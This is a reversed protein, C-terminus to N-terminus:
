LAVYATFAKCMASILKLPNAGLLFWLFFFLGLALGVYLKNRWCWKVIWIVLHVMVTPPALFWVGIVNVVALLPDFGANYANCLLTGGMVPLRILLLVLDGAGHWGLESIQAYLNYVIDQGYTAERRARVVQGEIVRSSTRSDLEWFNGVFYQEEPTPVHPVVGEAEATTGGARSPEGLPVEVWDGDRVVRTGPPRIGERGSGSMGATAGEGGAATETAKAKGKEMVEDPVEVEQAQGEKSPALMAGEATEGKVLPAGTTAALDNGLLTVIAASSRQVGGLFVEAVDTALIREMPRPGLVHEKEKGKKRSRAPTSGLHSSTATTTATKSDHTGSAEEDHKQKRISAFKDGIDHKIKEVKTLRYSSIAKASAKSLCYCRPGGFLCIEPCNEPMKNFTSM